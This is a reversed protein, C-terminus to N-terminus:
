GNIDQSRVHTLTFTLTHSHPHLYINYHPHENGKTWARIWAALVTDEGAAMRAHYASVVVRLAPYNYCMWGSMTSPPARFLITHNTVSANGRVSKIVGLVREWIDTKVEMMLYARTLTLASTVGVEVSRINAWLKKGRYPRERIHPPSAFVINVM